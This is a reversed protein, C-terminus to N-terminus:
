YYTAYYIYDTGVFYYYDDYGDVIYWKGDYKVAYFEDGDVDIEDDEYIIEGDLTLLYAQEVSEEDVGYLSNFSDAIDELESDSVEEAEIEYDYEEFAGYGNYSVMEEYIATYNEEAASILEDASDFADSYEDNVELYHEWVADPLLDSIKSGDGKYGVDFYTELATEYSGTGNSSKGEEEDDKKSGSGGSTVAVVIAVVIAIVAVVIGGIIVPTKNNKSTRPAGQTMQQPMQQHMPTILQPQPMQQHM